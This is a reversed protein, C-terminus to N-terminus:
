AAGRDNDDYMASLCKRHPADGRWVHARDAGPHFLAMSSSRPLVAFRSRQLLPPDSDCNGYRKREMDAASNYRMLLPRPVRLARHAREGGHTAHCAPRAGHLVAGPEHMSVVPYVSVSEASRRPQVIRHHVVCRSLSRRRRPAMTYALTVPEATARPGM